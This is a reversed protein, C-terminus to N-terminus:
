RAEGITQRSESIRAPDSLRPGATRGYSGAFGHHAGGGSTPSRDGSEISGVDARSCQYRVKSQWFDKELREVAEALTARNKEEVVEVKHVDWPLQDPVIGSELILANLEIIRAEAVAQTASSARLRLPIKQTKREGSSDSARVRWYFSSRQVYLSGNVWRDKLANYTATLDVPCNTPVNQAKKGRTM